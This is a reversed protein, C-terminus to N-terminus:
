CLFDGFLEMQRPRNWDPPKLITKRDWRLVEMLDCNMMLAYRCTLFQRWASFHKCCRNGSTEDSKKDFRCRPIFKFLQQFISYYLM